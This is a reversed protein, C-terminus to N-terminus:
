IRLMTNHTSSFLLPPLLPSVENLYPARAAQKDAQKDDEYHTNAATTNTYKHTNANMREKMSIILLAAILKLIKSLSLLSERM